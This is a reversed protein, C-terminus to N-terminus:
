FGGLQPDSVSDAGTELHGAIQQRFSADSDAELTLDYWGFSHDLEVRVALTEGTEVLHVTREHSYANHIRLNNLRAGLNHLELTVANEAPHYQVHTVVNAKDHNALSGKFARLFGNPGYVSLDYATEHSARFNWTDDLEDGAGVTYTWPGDADSGSRVQFVAAAKGTNKFAVKVKGTEIDAEGHAHLEYPVARAPRVGSEQAPLSQVAPVPPVYDDHRDHDQPVYAATSPLRFPNDNPTRFNFASTLDGTVAGRWKTINPEKLHGNGGHGFRAQVFKILSTHDFLESSVWGGRSWPSIVVMPVRVGLGYPGAEFNANGAFVENTTDVTSLGEARSQPPTPPVVHDFLGDNEDFMLFLATKSFLEPNSTLTDIVQSVYWAGFNPPWNGHESYAEPAVIWSVQSLKNGHVDAALQDFLGGSVNINTGQLAGQYLPSGPQANQYQHFYLLSNDGYNGIFADDTWGWFNAANLGLGVDQYVKWSVGAAQLVEPFTSWDYGAEANDLVPGGNQGDNGVWGTWMHYRNPDTPGLFSCHYADCVTFADALAYHFPIDHRTLYAMTQPTKAPVWGDYKGGNWADHTTKWDHALDVFFQLGLDDATPHYPLVPTAGNPQSWVPDGSPLKVARPDGFGRVGRLSGFYHDFSRNEQMLFVIHEVDALTGTRNHAPIALARKISADFTGAFAGAGLLQLFTRRDTAM